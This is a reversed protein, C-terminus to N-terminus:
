AYGTLSINVCRSVRAYGAMWRGQTLLEVEDDIGPVSIFVPEEEVEIVEERRDKSFFIGAVCNDEDESLFCGSQRVLMHTMLKPPLPTALYVEKTVPTM